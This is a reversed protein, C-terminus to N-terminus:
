YKGYTNWCLEMIYQLWHFTLKLRGAQEWGLGRNQFEKVAQEVV